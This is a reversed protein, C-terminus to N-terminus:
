HQKASRDPSYVVPPVGKGRPSGITRGRPSATPSRSKATSPRSFSHDDKSGSPRSSGARCVTRRSSAGLDIWGDARVCPSRGPERGLCEARRCRDHACSSPVVNHGAGRSGAAPGCACGSRLRRWDRRGRSRSRLRTPARGPGRDGVRCRRTASRAGARASPGRRCNRGACPRLSVGARLVLSGDCGHM